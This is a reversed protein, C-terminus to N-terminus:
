ADRFPRMKEEEYAEIRKATAPSVFRLVSTIDSVHFRNGRVTIRVDDEFPVAAMKWYDACEDIGAKCTTELELLRARVTKKVKTM